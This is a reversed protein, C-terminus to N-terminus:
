TRIHYYSFTTWDNINQRRHSFTYEGMAFLIDVVIPWWYGQVGNVCKCQSPKHWHLIRVPTNICGQEAPHTHSMLKVRVSLMVGTIGPRLSHRLECLPLMIIVFVLHLSTFILAEVWCHNVSYVTVLTWSLSGHPCVLLNVPALRNRSM